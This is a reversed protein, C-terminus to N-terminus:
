KVGCTTKIEGGKSGQSTEIGHKDMQEGDDRKRSDRDENEFVYSKETM